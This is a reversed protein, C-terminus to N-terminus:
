CLWQVDGRKIALDVLLFLAMAELECVTVAM